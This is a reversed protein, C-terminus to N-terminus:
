MSLSHTTAHSHPICWVADRPMALLLYIRNYGLADDWELGGVSRKQGLYGFMLNVRSFLPTNFSLGSGTHGPSSSLLKLSDWMEENRGKLQKPPSFSSIIKLRWSMLLQVSVSVPVGKRTRHCALGSAGSSSKWHFYVFMSSLLCCFGDAWIMSSGKALGDVPLRGAPMSWVGLFSCCPTAKGVPRLAGQHEHGGAATPRGVCHCSSVSPCHEAKGHCVSMEVTQLGPVTLSSLQWVPGPRQAVAWTVPACWPSIQSIGSPWM